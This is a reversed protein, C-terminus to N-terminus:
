ATKKTLNQLLYMHYGLSQNVFKNPVAITTVSFHKGQLRWDLLWFCPLIFLAM